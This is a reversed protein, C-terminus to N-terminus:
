GDIISFRDVKFYRGIEKQALQRIRQIYEELRNSKSWRLLTLTANASPLLWRIGGRKWRSSVMKRHTRVVRVKSRSPRKFHACELEWVCLISVEIASQTSCLLTISLTSITSSLGFFAQHFGLFQRHFSPSVHNSIRPRKNKLALQNWISIMM